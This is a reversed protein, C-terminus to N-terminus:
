EGKNLAFFADVAALAADTQLPRHRKVIEGATSQQFEDSLFVHLPEFPRSDPPYYGRFDCGVGKREINWFLSLVEHELRPPLDYARLVAADMTMLARLIGEPTATHEYLPGVALVLERYRLAAQVIAASHALSQYPVPMQRISGVLIDRKFTHTHAFANALPSNLIAWLYVVSTSPIRPRVAIFRSTIARGYEDLVAKLRWAERSVRGYNLLVQPRESPRGARYSLVTRSELNIGVVKPLGFIKLTDDVHAYGLPDGSRAPDHVTWCNLPRSAGKHDLGKAVLAISELKPCSNLYKWVNGLEPTRFDYSRDAHFQSSTVVEESSFTFGNLFADMNQNRVRRYRIPSPMLQEKRRRGLLVATEPEGKEFLKDEFVAIESLEFTSLLSRRLGTMDRSHLFGLPVVVGFCANRAIQPIARSLMEYAKTNTTFRIGEKDYQAREKPTFREYPPNALLLGCTKAGSELLSNEFMDKNQLNWSNGYPIDALTLSLKAVEVAFPDSEIGYLHQRLYEHRVKPDAIDSWQRLMRLAGVLFAAHGCAPEFVHRREPPLEEIWPWLQWIMYDVLPGPTSHTGNSKRVVDPIMANEYVHALADTSTHILPPFDGITAAAQEIASRWGKRDPPLGNTDGYHRGVRRFVEDIENLRLNIFNPVSKDHLFKAALLWFTSKFADNVDRPNDINRGITKEIGRIVREVLSSLAAGNARELHPMLGADVFALQTQNPLRRLTKGEFINAPAFDRKHEEFFNSVHASEIPSGLMMPAGTTQKWWQLRGSTCAFVVPAGVPGIQAVDRAPDGHTDIAAICVSRIDHPTDAFAALPVSGTGYNYDAALLASSYGCAKLHGALRSATLLPQIVIITRETPRM